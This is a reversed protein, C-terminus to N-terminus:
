GLEVQSSEQLPGPRPVPAPAQVPRRTLRLEAGLAVLFGLGALAAAVVRVATGLTTDPLLLALAVCAAAVSYSSLESATRWNVAAASKAARGTLATQALVALVTAAAAGQLGFSPLLVAVLALNLAVTGPTIWALPRTRKEWLLVQTRAMFMAWGVTALAGIAAVEALLDSDYSGPVIISLAPAATLALFGSCFAALRAVTASTESLTDWREADSAAFTIPVWAMQLSQVLVVGLFGFAFAVQYKGVASAGDIGAIVFRDAFGLAFISVTYPVTPLGYALATRLVSRAAPRVRISRTLVLGTVTAIVMAVMVGVLYTAPVPSIIVGVVALVQAGVTSILSVVVFARPREEARLLSRCGALVATPLGLAIGFLLATVYGSGSPAAILILAALAVTVALSVVASSAILERAAIARHGDDYYFRLIAEPLGLAILTGLLLQLTTALTVFGYDSPDLLRTAIPIALAAAAIKLANALTYVSGQRLLRRGASQSEESM